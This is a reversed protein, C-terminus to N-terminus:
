SQEPVNEDYQILRWEIAVFHHTEGMLTRLLGAGKEVLVEPMKEGEKFRRQRKNIARRTTLCEWTGTQSCLDGSTITTGLATKQLVNRSLSTENVKRIRITNIIRDWIELAEDDTVSPKLKAKANGRVGSDFRIDLEPHLADNVAGMSHFRFEHADTDEKYAPRRTAIEEGEWIGLQRNGNRFVKIRKFFNGMGSAEADLRAEERLKGPNSDLPLRNQNKHADISFRVDSFEQFRLGITVRERLPELAIFGGEICVGSGLPIESELRASIKNSIENIRSIYDVKPPVPGFRQIFLDNGIPTFSEIVYGVSNVAGFLIKQGERVGDVLKGIMPLAEKEYIPIYSAEEKIEILRNSVIKEIDEGGNKKLWIESEVSAPGYVVTTESPIDLLFRGFCITRTNVFMDEIKKSHSRMIEVSNKESAELFGSEVYILLIAVSIKALNKAIM